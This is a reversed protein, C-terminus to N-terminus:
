PAIRATLTRSRESRDTVGESALNGLIVAWGTLMALSPAPSRGTEWRYITIPDIGMARGLESRGIRAALRRACLEGVTPRDDLM